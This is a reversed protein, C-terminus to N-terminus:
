KGEGFLDDVLRAIAAVVVDAGAGIAKLTVRSGKPAVLMLVGMISKANVEHGDKALTIEGPFKAAIQVLQSAARAHLGRENQILLVKEVVGTDAM